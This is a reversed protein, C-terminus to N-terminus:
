PTPVIILQQNGALFLTGGDPSITMENFFTGPSAVAVNGTEPFSPVDLNFKRITPGPSGFYAYATSGDPSIVFGTLGAPLTGLASLTGAAFNYVTTVQSATLESSVLIMRSGDRNVSAHGTQTTTAGANPNVTRNSADYTMVQKALAPVLPEFTPLVLTDGDGSAVITRNTV